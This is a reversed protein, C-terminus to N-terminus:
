DDITRSHSNPHGIPPNDGSRTAGRWRAGPWSASGTRAVKRADVAAGRAQEPNIEAEVTADTSTIESVSQAEITPASAAAAGAAALSIFATVALVALMLTTRM